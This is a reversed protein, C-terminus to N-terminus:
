RYNWRASKDVLALMCLNGTARRQRRTNTANHRRDRRARLGRVWRSWRAVPDGFVRGLHCQSRTPSGNQGCELARNPAM